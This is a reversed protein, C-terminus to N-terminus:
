MNSLGQLFNMKLTKKDQFRIQAEKIIRIAAEKSDWGEIGVKKKELEKYIQFFHEIEKKLHENVESLDGIYNWKPDSVPVCLIKEDPGKEDYM